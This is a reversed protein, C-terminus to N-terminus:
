FEAVTDHEGAQPDYFRLLLSSLTSKGSGSPGVVATVLGAPIDLSLNSFIPVDIRSPYSFSVGKLLMNGQISPLTITPKDVHDM